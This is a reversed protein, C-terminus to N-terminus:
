REYTRMAGVLTSLAANTLSASIGHEIKTAWPIAVTSVAALLGDPSLQPSCLVRGTPPVLLAAAFAHRRREPEHQSSKFVVGLPYSGRRASGLPNRTWRRLWESLTDQQLLAQNAIVQAHPRGGGQQLCGAAGLAVAAAAYWVLRQKRFAPAM